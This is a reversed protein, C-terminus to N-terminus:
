DYVLERLHHKSTTQFLVLVIVSLYVHLVHHSDLIMLFHRLTESIWILFIVIFFFIFNNSGVIPFSSSVATLLCTGRPRKASVVFQQPCLWAQLQAHHLPSPNASSSYVRAKNRPSILDLDLCTEWFGM